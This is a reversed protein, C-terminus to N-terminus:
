KVVGLARSGDVDIWEVAAAQTLTAVVDDVLSRDRYAISKRLERLGMPQEALKKLVLTTVREVQQEKLDRKEIDASWQEVGRVAGAEEAVKRSENRLADVVTQRTHTSIAAAIGSLDWDEDNMEDRGDMFALAYAFKLRAFLAHGDLAEILEHANEERTQKILDKARKPVTLTKPYMFSSIPACRIPAVWRTEDSAAVTIREDKAPFWLFRQPTGGGEDSLLWGARKPQMSVTMTMRYTHEDRSRRKTSDAYGYGIFEGSWAQRLISLVDNGTRGALNKLQDVEPVDFYISELWTSPDKADPNFAALFGEGTGIPRVNIADPVLERAVQAALGKGGSSKAVIAFFQNLSGGGRGLIPPLKIKPPILCLARSTSIALVAWPSAMAALAADFIEKLSTRSDWFGQELNVIESTSTSTQQVPDPVPTTTAQTTQAAAPTPPAKIEAITEDAAEVVLNRMWDDQSPQSLERAAGPNYIARRFEAAALDPQGAHRQGPKSLAAIFSQQYAILAPKVGTDGEKGYRMMTLVHGIMADHRSGEPNALQQIATSLRTAVRATIPGDTLCRAILADAESEGLTNTPTSYTIQLAEIWRDPLPPFDEVNPIGIHQWQGNYWWYTQGTKDHISPWAAAYRHHNQIVEIHGIGLEDFQIQGALRTGAPVHFFRIGSTQDGNELRSSSRPGAPLTGWRREAEAITAAGTKGSHADVDIGIVTDPMRLALNGNAYLECYQLIDPYSPDEGDHGTRGPPPPEKKRSPLPLIGRWGADWYLQAADGYGTNEPQPLAYLQADESMQHKRENQLLQPMHALWTPNTTARM